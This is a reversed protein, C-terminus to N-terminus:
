CLVKALVVADIARVITESESDENNVPVSVSFWCHTMRSLSDKSKNENAENEGDQLAYLLDAQEEALHVVTRGMGRLMALMDHEDDQEAIIQVMGSDGGTHVADMASNCVSHAAGLTPFSEEDYATPDVTEAAAASDGASTAPRKFPQMPNELLVRTASIEVVM